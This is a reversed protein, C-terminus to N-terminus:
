LCPFGLGELVGVSFLLSEPRAPILPLRGQPPACAKSSFAQKSSFTGSPDNFNRFRYQLSLHPATFPYRFRYRFFPLSSVLQFSSFVLPLPFGGPGYRFVSPPPPSLLTGVQFPGWLLPLFFPFDYLFLGDSFHSMFHVTPLFVDFVSSAVHNQPIPRVHHNAQLFPIIFIRPRTRKLSVVLLLPLSAFPFFIQFPSRPSM